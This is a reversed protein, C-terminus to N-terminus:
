APKFPAISDAVASLRIRAGCVQSVSGDLSEDLLRSVIARPAAMGSGFFAHAFHRTSQAAVFEVNHADNADVSMVIAGLQRKCASHSDDRVFARATEQVCWELSDDVDDDHVEKRHRIADTVIADLQRAFDFQILQEGNGSLSCGVLTASLRRDLHDVGGWFVDSRCGLGPIAAHGLRGRQKMWIGGSSCASVCVGTASDYVIAGVTGHSARALEDHIDAHSEVAAADVSKRARKAIPAQLTDQQDSEDTRSGACSSHADADLARRYRLWQRRTDPTCLDDGAVAHEPMLGRQRAWAAAGEGVLMVPATRQINRAHTTDQLADLVMRAPLASPLACDRVAGVGASARTRDLSSCLSISADCEVTGSESLASGRGTNTLTSAELCSMAALCATLAMPAPPPPSAAAAGVSDPTLFPVALAARCAESMLTNLAAHTSPAHYGAGCHVAVFMTHTDTDPCCQCSHPPFSSSGDAAQWTFTTFLERRRSGAGGRGGRDATASLDM